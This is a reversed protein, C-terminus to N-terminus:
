PSTQSGAVLEIAHGLKADWSKKNFSQQQLREVWRRCCRRYEHGGGSVDRQVTVSEFGAVRLQLAKVKQKRVDFNRFEGHLWTESFALQHRFASRCSGRFSPRGFRCICASGQREDGHNGKSRAGLVQRGRVDARDNLGVYIIDPQQAAGLFDHRTRRQRGDSQM